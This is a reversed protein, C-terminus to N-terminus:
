TGFHVKKGWPEMDQDPNRAYLPFNRGAKAITDEVLAKPFLLRGEDSLKGGAKTVLEVCSPIPDSLGITALVDLAASHIRGVDAGKLPKFLGGEMGPRIIRKDATVPLERMAKRANRGGSRRSKTPEETNSM